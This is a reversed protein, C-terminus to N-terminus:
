LLWLGSALILPGGAGQETSWGQRALAVFSPLAFALVAFVLFWHGAAWDIARSRSGAPVFPTVIINMAPVVCNSTALCRVGPPPVIIQFTAEPDVIPLPLLASSLHRLPSWM